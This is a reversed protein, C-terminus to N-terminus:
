RVNARALVETGEDAGYRHGDPRLSSIEFYVSPREAMWKEVGDALDSTWEKFYFEAIDAVAKEPIGSYATVLISHAGLEHAQNCFTRVQTSSIETSIM